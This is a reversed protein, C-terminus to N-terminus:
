RDQGSKKDDSKSMRDEARRAAEKVGEKAIKRGLAHAGHHGAAKKLALKGAVKALLLPILHIAM